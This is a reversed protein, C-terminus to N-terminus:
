GNQTQAKLRSHEVHLVIPVILLRSGNLNPPFPNGVTWTACDLQEMM